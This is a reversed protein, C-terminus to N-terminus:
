KRCNAAYQDSKTSGTEPTFVVTILRKGNRCGGVAEFFGRTKGRRKVTLRKVNSDVRKVANSLTPLPHLLSDPVVFELASVNGRKVFNADIPAALNIDCRTRPDTSTQTGRVYITADRNGENIVFIGANCKISRNNPDNRDGTENEIFGTGVISGSPCGEPGEAEITSDSCKKFFNTNVQTGQFQISYKKVPTPRRGERESVNYDFAIGIPVPKKKTGAKPPSTSGIVEYTNEVATQAIAIAALALVLMAATGAVWFKRM